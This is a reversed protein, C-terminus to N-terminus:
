RCSGRVAFTMDANLCTLILSLTASLLSLSFSLPFLWDSGFKMLLLLFFFFFRRSVGVQKRPEKGKATKTGPRKIATVETWTGDDKRGTAPSRAASSARSRGSVSGSRAPKPSAKAGNNNLAATSVESAATATPQQAQSVAPQSPAQSSEDKQQTADTAESPQGVEAPVFSPAQSSLQGPLRRRILGNAVELLASNQVAMVIFNLNEPPAMGALMLSLRRFRSIVEVPVWGEPSLQSRLFMDKALNEDSFYYEIQQQVM